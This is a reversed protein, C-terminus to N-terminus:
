KSSARCAPDEQKELQRELRAICKEQKQVATFARKLRRQWRVLASRERALRTRLKQLTQPSPRNPAPSPVAARIIRRRPTAM